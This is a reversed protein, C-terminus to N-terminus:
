TATTPDPAAQAPSFGLFHRRTTEPVLWEMRSTSTALESMEQVSGLSKDSFVSPAASVLDAGNITDLLWPWSSSNKKAKSLRGTDVHRHTIATCM